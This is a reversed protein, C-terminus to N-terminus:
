KVNCRNKDWIKYIKKYIKRAFKDVDSHTAYTTSKNKNVQLTYQVKNEEPRFDEFTREVYLHYDNNKITFRRAVGGHKTVYSHHLVPNSTALQLIEQKQNIECIKSKPLFIKQLFTAM